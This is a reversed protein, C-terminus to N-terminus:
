DCRARPNCTDFLCALPFRTAAVFMVGFVEPIKIVVRVSNRLACCARPFSRLPVRPASEGQQQAILYIALLCCGILLCCVIALLWYGIALVWYGIFLPCYGIELPGASRSGRCSAALLLPCADPPAPCRIRQCLAYANPFEELFDSKSLLCAKVNPLRCYVRIRSSWACRLGFYMLLSM